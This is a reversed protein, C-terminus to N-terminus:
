WVVLTGVVLTVVIIVVVVVVGLPIGVAEVATGDHPQAVKTHGSFSAVASASWTSSANIAPYYNLSTM